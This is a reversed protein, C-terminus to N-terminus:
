RCAACSRSAARRAQCDGPRRNSGAANARPRICWRVARPLSTQFRTTRNRSVTEQFLALDPALQKIGDALVPRRRERDVRQGLINHTYLHVSTQRALERDFDTSGTM